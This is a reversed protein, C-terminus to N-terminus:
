SLINGSTLRYLVSYCYQRRRSTRWEVEYRKWQTLLDLDDPSYYFGLEMETEIMLASLNVEDGTATQPTVGADRCTQFVKSMFLSVALLNDLTNNEITGHKEILSINIAYAVKRRPIYIGSM